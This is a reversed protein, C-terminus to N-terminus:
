EKLCGGFWSIVSVAHQILKLRTRSLASVIEFACHVRWYMLMKFDNGVGYRAPQPKYLISNALM